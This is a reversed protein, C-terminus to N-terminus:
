IGRQPYEGAQAIRGPCPQKVKGNFTGPMKSDYYIDLIMRESDLNFRVIKGQPLNLKKRLISDLAEATLCVKFGYKDESRADPGEIDQLTIM